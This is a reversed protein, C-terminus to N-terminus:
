KKKRNRIARTLDRGASYTGYTSGLAVTGLAGGAALKTALPLNKVDKILEKKIREKTPKVVRNEVANKVRRRDKRAKGKVYTKTKDIDAVARDRVVKALGKIRSALGFEAIFDM